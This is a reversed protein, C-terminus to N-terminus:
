FQEDHLIADLQAVITSMQGIIEGLRTSEPLDDLMVVAKDIALSAQAIADCSADCFHKM